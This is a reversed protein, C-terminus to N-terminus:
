MKRLCKPCIILQTCIAVVPSHPIVEVYVCASIVSSKTTNMDDVFM